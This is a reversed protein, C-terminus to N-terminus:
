RLYVRNRSRFLRDGNRSLDIVLLWNGHVASSQGGFTGAAREDLPVTVDFRRDTPHVLQASADLGTLPRGQADRAVIEVATAAHGAQVTAKVQWHLAEQADAAAIERSFDLGAQYANQTEVGGFTSVAARVLVANVAAVVGFFGLLCILVMRGTVERPRRTRQTPEISIM